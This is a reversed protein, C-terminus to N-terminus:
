DRWCRGGSWSPRASTGSSRGTWRRFTSPPASPGSALLSMMWHSSSRQVVLVPVSVRQQRGAQCLRETRTITTIGAMHGPFVLVGPVVPISPVHATAPLRSGRRDLLRAPM